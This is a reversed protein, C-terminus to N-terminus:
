RGLKEISKANIDNMLLNFSKQISEFQRMIGVLGVISSIPNVNSQELYGQKIDLEAAPKATQGSSPALLSNGERLLAGPNEFSATKLRDVRTGNLSVDGQGDVTIKGPGLTIIGKEGLVPFGDATCLVSKSNLVLSGNRTYRVGQPAQVALFGNGTLALDMDRGTLSLSGNSVNLAGRSLVAQNNIVVGLEGGPSTQMTENLLTYFPKEEKFGTTNVNSLNNSLIDLANMQARLGSYATYIGSDV